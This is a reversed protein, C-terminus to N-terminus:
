LSDTTVVQDGLLPCISLLFFAKVDVIQKRYVEKVDLLSQKLFYLFMLFEAYFASIKECLLNM